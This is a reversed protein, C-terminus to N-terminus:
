CRIMKRCYPSLCNCAIKSTTIKKLTEFDWTLEEGETIYTLSIIEYKRKGVQIIETNPTCSHNIFSAFGLFEKGRKKQIFNNRKLKISKGELFVEIEQSSKFTESIFSFIVDNKRLPQTTTVSTSDNDYFNIVINKPINNMDRQVLNTNM